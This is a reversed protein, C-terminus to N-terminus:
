TPKWVGAKRSEELHQPALHQLYTVKKLFGACEETGHGLITQNRVLGMRRARQVIIAVQPDQVHLIDIQERRLKPLLSLAFTTQEAACGSGFGLRWLFRPRIWMLRQTWSSERHLCRVVREYPREAKGGGKFLVVHLGRADLARALDAAWSEIGRAVHGLGSSAVAIRMGTTDCSPQNM